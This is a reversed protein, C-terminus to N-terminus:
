RNWSRSWRWRRGTRWCGTWWTPLSAPKRRRRRLRARRQWSCPETTSSWPIGPRSEDARAYARMAFDDMGWRWARYGLNLFNQAALFGDNTQRSVEEFAAMAGNPAGGQMLLNGLSTWSEASPALEVARWAARAAEQLVTPGGCHRPWGAGPKPMTLITLRPGSPRPSKPSCLIPRRSRRSRSPRFRLRLQLRRARPRSRTPAPPWLLWCWSCASDNCKPSRLVV